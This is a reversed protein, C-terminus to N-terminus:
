LYELPGRSFVRRWATALVVLLAAVTACGLAIGGLGCSARLRADLNLAWDSFLFM